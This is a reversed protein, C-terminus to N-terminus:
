GNRVDFFMDIKDELLDSKIKKIARLFEEWSLLNTRSTNMRDFIIKVLDESEVRMEPIGKFFTKFDIGLVEFENDNVALTLKTLVKFQIYLEYLKARDIKYQAEFKPINYEILLPLKEQMLKDHKIYKDEFQRINSKLKPNHENISAKYLARDKTLNVIRAEAKKRNQSNSYEEFVALTKLRERQKLKQLFKGIKKEIRISEEVFYIFNQKANNPRIKEYAEIKRNENDSLYEIDNIITNHSFSKTRRIKYKDIKETFFNYMTDNFGMSRFDGINYSTVKKVIKSLLLFFVILRSL